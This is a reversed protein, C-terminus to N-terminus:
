YKCLFGFASFAAALVWCNRFALAYASRYASEAASIVAQTATSLNALEQLDGTSVASVLLELDKSPFGLPTVAAAIKSVLNSNLTNSFIANNVVTGIAAGFGRSALLLGTTLAIMAPPTSMQATVVINSVTFGNAAAQLVSIGFFFSQTTNADVTAMGACYGVYSLLGILMTDKLRKTRTTYFGAIVFMPVGLSFCMILPLSADWSSVGNLLIHEYVFYNNMTFFVAGEVALIICALLYSRHRFLSHHAIGEKNVLGEYLCFAILFTLGLIFPALVHQNTFGYPNDYWNLGLSFLTLGTVLLLIGIWDLRALKDILTLNNQLENALPRYGFFIGVIGIAYVAAAVYFYIRYNELNNHRLLSGGLLVSVTGGVATTCQVTSQAWARHRRPMIESVISFLAFQLGVSFGSVGFGGLLMSISSARAVMMQGAFALLACVLIINKRGWFDSIQAIPPNLTCFAIGTIASPWLSKSADGLLTTSSIGLFGAGVVSLM